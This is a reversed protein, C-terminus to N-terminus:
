AAIALAPQNVRAQLAALAEAWTAFFQFESLWCFVNERWGIVCIAKGIGHAYGVEVWHGGRSSTTRPEDSFVLVADCANIDAIDRKAYTVSRTENEKRENIWRSTVSHGAAILDAAIARMEARRSFRAALYIKASVAQERM